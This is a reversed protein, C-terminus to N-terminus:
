RGGGILEATTLSLARRAEPHILVGTLRPKGVIYKAAYGTLDSLTQAAMNDVYGM